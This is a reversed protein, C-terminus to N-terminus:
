WEVGERGGMKVGFKVEEMSTVVDARDVLERPADRGTLVVVMEDGAREILDLVEGVEVLGASVAVCVEDLILVDVDSGAQKKAFDLGEQAKERDEISPNKLDVWGKQGFQKVEFGTGLREQMLYEGTEKWGKLFQVMMVDKGHAVSRMALGLAARTKGPGDGSYLHVLTKESM